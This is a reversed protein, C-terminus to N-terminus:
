SGERSRSALLLVASDSQRSSSVPCRGSARRRSRGRVPAADRASTPPTTSNSSSSCLPPVVEVATGSGCTFRCGGVRHLSSANGPANAPHTITLAPGVGSAPTLTPGLVEEGKSAAASSELSPGAGASPPLTPPMRRAVVAIAPQAAARGHRLDRGPQVTRRRDCSVLSSGSQLILRIHDLLEPDTSLRGPGARSQPERRRGRRRCAQRSAPGVRESVSARSM